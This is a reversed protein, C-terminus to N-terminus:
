RTRGSRGSLRAPAWVARLKALTVAREAASFGSFMRAEHADAASRARDHLDRGAPTLTLAQSRGDVAEVM